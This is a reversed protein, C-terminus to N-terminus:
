LALFYLFTHILNVTTWIVSERNVSLVTQKIPHEWHSLYVNENLYVGLCIWSTPIFVM